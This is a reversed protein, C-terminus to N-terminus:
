ENVLHSIQTVVVPHLQVSFYYLNLSSGLTNRQYCLSQCTFCIYFSCSPCSSRPKVLFKAETEWDLRCTDQLRTTFCQLCVDRRNLSTKRRWWSMQKNRSEIVDRHTQSYVVVNRAQMIQLVFLKESSSSTKLTPTLFVAIMYDNGREWRCGLTPTTNLFSVRSPFTQLSWLLTMMWSVFYKLCSILCVLMCPHLMVLTCTSQFSHHLTLLSFISIIIDSIAQVKFDLHLAPFSCSSHCSMMEDSVVPINSM